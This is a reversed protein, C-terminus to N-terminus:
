PSGWLRGSIRDAVMSNIAGESYITFLSTQDSYKDLIHLHIPMLVTNRWFIWYRKVLGPGWIFTSLQFNYIKNRLRFM